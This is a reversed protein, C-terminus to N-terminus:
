QELLNCPPAISALLPPPPSPAHPPHTELSLTLWRRLYKASSQNAHHILVSVPASSLLTRTGNSFTYASAPHTFRPPEDTARTGMAFLITVRVKDM